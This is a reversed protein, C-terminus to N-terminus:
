RPVVQARRMWDLAWARPDSATRVAEQWVLNEGAAVETPDAPPLTQRDAAAEAAWCPGRLTALWRPAAVGAAGVM